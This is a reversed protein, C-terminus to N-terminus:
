RGAFFSTLRSLKSRREYAFIREAAARTVVTKPGFRGWSFGDGTRARRLDVVLYEPTLGELFARLTDDAGTLAADRTM